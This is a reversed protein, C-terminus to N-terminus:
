VGYRMIFTQLPEILQKKQVTLLFFSELVFLLKKNLNFYKLNYVFSIITGFGCTLCIILHNTFNNFMYVSYTM